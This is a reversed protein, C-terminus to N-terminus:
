APTRKSPIDKKHVVTTMTFDVAFRMLLWPFDGFFTALPEDRVYLM